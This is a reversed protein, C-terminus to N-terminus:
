QQVIQQMFFKLEQESIYSQQPQMRTGQQANVRTDAEIVRKERKTTKKRGSCLNWFFIILLFLLCIGLVAGTVIWKFEISRQKQIPSNLADNIKQIEIESPISKTGM